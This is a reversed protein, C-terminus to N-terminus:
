IGSLAGKCSPWFQLSLFTVELCTNRKPCLMCILICILRVYFMCFVGQIDYGPLRKCTDHMGLERGTDWPIIFIFNYPKATQHLCFFPFAAKPYCYPIHLRQSTNVNELLECSLFSLLSLYILYVIIIYIVFQSFLYITITTVPLNTITFLLFLLVTYQNYYWCPKM